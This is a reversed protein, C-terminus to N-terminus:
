DDLDDSANGIRFGVGAAFMWGANRLEVMNDNDSFDAFSWGYRGDITFFVGSGQTQIDIGAGVLAGVDSRRVDDTNAEVAVGSNTDTGTLDVNTRFGFNPGALIHPFIVENALPLRAKILVPIEFYNIRINSRVNNSTVDAGRETLLFEPQLAIAKGLQFNTFVGGFWSTRAEINDTDAGRFTTVALGGKPGFSFAFQAKVNQNFSLVLLAIALATKYNKLLVRSM